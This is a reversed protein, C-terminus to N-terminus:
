FLSEVILTPGSLTSFLDGNSTPDAFVVLGDGANAAHCFVIVGAVNTPAFVNDVDADNVRFYYNVDGSAATMAGSFTIRYTATEPFTVTGSSGSHMASSDILESDWTITAGAALIAQSSTKTLACIHPGALKARTVSAPAIKATTVAEDELFFQGYVTGDGNTFTSVDVDGGGVVYSVFAATGYDFQTVIYWDATITEGNLTRDRSLIDLPVDDLATPPIAGSIATAVYYVRDIVTFTYAGPIDLTRVDAAEGPRPCEVTVVGSGTAVALVVTRGDDFTEPRPLVVTVGTSPAFIIVTSDLAVPANPSWRVVSRRIPPQQRVLEASLRDM